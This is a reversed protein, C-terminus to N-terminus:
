GLWGNMCKYIVCDVCRKRVVHKPVVTTGNDPFGVNVCAAGRIPGVRLLCMCVMKVEHCTIM